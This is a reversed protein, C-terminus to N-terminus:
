GEKRLNLEELPKTEQLKAHRHSLEFFSSLRNSSSHSYAGIQDLFM